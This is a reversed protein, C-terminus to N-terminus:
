IELFQFLILNFLFILCYNMIKINLFYFLLYRFAFTCTSGNVFLTDGDFWAGYGEHIHGFIHIRLHKNRSKVSNLLDECGCKIGRSTLDGYGFPPGFIDIFEEPILNWKDLCEQGRNLNFAWSSFLAFFKILLYIIL